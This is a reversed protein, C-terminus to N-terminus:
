KKAWQYKMGLPKSILLTDTDPITVIPVWFCDVLKALCVANFRQIAVSIRQYLFTAFFCFYYYNNNVFYQNFHCKICNNCAWHLPVKCLWHSFHQSLVPSVTLLPIIIPVTIDEFTSPFVATVAHRQCCSASQEMRTISCGSDRICM